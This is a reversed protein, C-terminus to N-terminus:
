RAPRLARSFFVTEAIPTDYYPPIRSFGTDEYLAIAATMGPLTDLYMTDYGLRVGEDIVRQVLVRGLGLGRANPSVYLRKMECNNDPPFARLAVCGIAEGGRSRALFLAGSPPAYKGPLAFLEAEFDQYSLDLAISAAYARMLEAAAAIDAPAAAPEITFLDPKPRQM